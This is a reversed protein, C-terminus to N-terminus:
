KKRRPRTKCEDLRGKVVEPDNYLPCISKYSCWNCFDNKSPYLDDSKCKRITWVDDVVSKIHQRITGETYTAAVVNNTLPYYHAFTIKAIPVGTLRHAAYVYSKGQPDNFLDFKTKERRSTKYDIVLVDGTPAKVIRDIYGEHKIGSAIEEVFHHEVLSEKPLSSNFRLFNKFCKEIDKNYKEPFKYKDKIENAKSWLQDISTAGTCHEFVEHIFSGFHLAGTNGPDTDEYRNVYNYKYKLRCQRFTERKSNSITECYM